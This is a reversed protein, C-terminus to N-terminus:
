LGYIEMLTEIETDKKTKRKKKKVVNVTDDISKLGIEPIDATVKWNNLLNESWRIYANIDLHKKFNFLNLDKATNLLVGQNSTYNTIASKKWYKIPLWQESNPDYYGLRDLNKGNEKRIKNEKVDDSSDGLDTSRLIREDNKIDINLPQYIKTKGDELTVSKVFDIKFEPSNFDLNENGLPGSFDLSEEIGPLRIDSKKLNHNLQLQRAFYHSNNKSIFTNSEQELHNGDTTFVVRNIKQKINGDYLLRRSKTGVFIHYWASKPTNKNEFYDNIINKLREADYPKKLWDEDDVMYKIAAHASILPYQVNKGLSVKSDYELHEGHTLQGKVSTIDYLNDECEIRSSADRNIFRKILEPDVGMGYDHVYGNIVEQAKDVTINCVYLGDTNTSIVFAGAQTLRQGLVWINMNGMLRMGLTKNDLPLLSYPKHTNSEGTVSNLVLKLGMEILVLDMYEKSDRSYGQKLLEKMEAKTKLRLDIIETYRDVNEKTLYLQTLKCMVPYFSSWDIHVVDTTDITPKDNANVKGGSKIWNEIENWSKKSLGAHVFGHAGGTSLSIISDTPQGNRCYPFNLISNRTIPQSYIVKNNDSYSSTNKGRFHEFFQKIFDPVFEEKEKIYELLDVFEKNNQDGNIPVPFQYQVTPSDEPKIRKPGIVVRAALKATTIDREAPKWRDIKELPTFRASTFSFLDRVIDRSQLSEIMLNLRSIVLTGLVDNFNYDVLTNRDEDSWIKSHDEAVTEDFIIDKGFRAMERKLGPPVVRENGENNEQKVIKAWDIHGDSWLALHYTSKISVAKLLGATEKEIYDYLEFPPGQYQIVLNSLHRIDQPTTKEKKAQLLLRILVLMILDYESSNWGCYEVFPNTQYFRKDNELKECTIMKILDKSFRIMDERNGQKYRYVYYKLDKVSKINMDKRTDEKDAFDKMQKILDEDTLDNFQENGFLMLSFANDHIMALTFLDPMSEIDYTVRLANKKYSLDVEDYVDKLKTKKPTNNEKIASTM